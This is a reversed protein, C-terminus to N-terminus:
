SNGALDGNSNTDTFNNITRQASLSELAKRYQESSISFVEMAEKIQPNAKLFKDVKGDLIKTTKMPMELM